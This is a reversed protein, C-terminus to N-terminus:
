ATTFRKAKTSLTKFVSPYQQKLTQSWKKLHSLQKINLSRRIQPRSGSKEPTKIQWQPDTQEAYFLDLADHFGILANEIRQALPVNHQKLAHQRAMRLSINEIVIKALSPSTSAAKFAMLIHLFQWDPHHAVRYIGIVAKQASPPLKYLRKLYLLAMM